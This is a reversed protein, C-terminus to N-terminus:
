ASPAQVTTPGINLRHSPGQQNSLYFGGVQSPREPPCCQGGRSNIVAQSVRCAATQRDDTLVKTKLVGNTTRNSEDANKRQKHLKSVYYSSDNVGGNKFIAPTFIAICQEFEGGM